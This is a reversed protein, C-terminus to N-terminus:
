YYQKYSTYNGTLSYRNLSKAMPQQHNTTPTKVNEIMAMDSYGNNRILSGNGMKVSTPKSKVPTMNQPTNFNFSSSPSQKSNLMSKTM